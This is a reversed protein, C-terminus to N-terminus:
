KKRKFDITMMKVWKGDSGQFSSTFIKQDKSKFETADRFKATKGPETPSPGDSELTLIKGTSDVTGKYHWLYSTMSDIWTGVYSKTEPDYGVTSVGTFPTGMMDGKNEAIVWFGGIPRVSETGKTQIAPMGEGMVLEASYEWEGVFQQLWEHEKSPPPMDPMDQPAVFLALVVSAIATKYM